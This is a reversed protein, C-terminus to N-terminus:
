AKSAEKLLGLATVAQIVIDSFGLIEAQSKAEEFCCRAKENMDLKTYINGLKLYCVPLEISGIGKGLVIADLMSTLAVEYDGLETNVDSMTYLIVMEQKPSLGKIKTSYDYANTILKKAEGFLENRIKHVGYWFLVHVYLLGTKESIDGDLIKSRQCDLCNQFGIEALNKDGAVSYLRALRLRFDVLNHNNDPYGLSSLKEIVEVLLLEAEETKGDNIALTALIDYIFPLGNYLKHEESLKLGLKLIAEARDVEGTELAYRALNMIYVLNTEADQEATNNYWLSTLTSVTSLLFGYKCASQHKRCNKIFTEVKPIKTIVSGANRVYAYNRPTVCKICSKLIKLFVHSKLM